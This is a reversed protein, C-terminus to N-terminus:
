IVDVPLGLNALATAANAACGGCHLSMEDVLVLSGPDPVSHVPKGIVDAVLIGLCAIPKQMAMM